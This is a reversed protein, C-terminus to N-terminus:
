LGSSCLEARCHMSPHLPAPGPDPSCPAPGAPVFRGLQRDGHTRGRLLVPAAIRQCSVPFADAFFSLAANPSRQAADCSRSSATVGPQRPEALAAAASLPTQQGPRAPELGSVDASGGSVLLRGLLRQLGRLVRGSVCLCARRQTQRRGLTLTHKVQGYTPQHSGHSANGREDMEFLGEGEQVGEDKM